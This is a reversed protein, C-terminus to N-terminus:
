VSKVRTYYIYISMHIRINIYIYLRITILYSYSKIQKFKAGVHNYSISIVPHPAILDLNYQCEKGESTQFPKIHVLNSNKM